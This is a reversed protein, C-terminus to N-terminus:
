LKILDGFGEVLVRCALFELQAINLSQDGDFGVRERFATWDLNEMM